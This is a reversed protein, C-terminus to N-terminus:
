IKEKVDYRGPGCGADLIIGQRPLYKELFHLSTEFEQRHNADQVLRRWENQVTTTCFDKVRTELM